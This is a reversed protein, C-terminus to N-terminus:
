DDHRPRAPSRPGRPRAAGPPKRRARLRVLGLGVVILAIFLIAAMIEM